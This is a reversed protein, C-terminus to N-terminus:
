PPTHLAPRIPIQPAPPSKTHTLPFEVKSNPEDVLLRDLVSLTVPGLPERKTEREAMGVEHGVLSACSGVPLNKSLDKTQGCRRLRAQGHLSPAAGHPAGAHFVRGM